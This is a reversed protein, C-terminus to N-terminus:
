SAGKRPARAGSLSPGMFAGLFERGWCRGDFGGAFPFAAAGAGSPSRMALTIARAPMQERRSASLSISSPFTVTLPLTSALGARLTVARSRM